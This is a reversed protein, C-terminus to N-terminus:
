CTVFISVMCCQYGLHGLWVLLMRKIYGIKGEIKNHVKGQLSRKNGYRRFVFSMILSFTFCFFIFMFLGQWYETGM